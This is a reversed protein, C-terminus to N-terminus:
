VVSSACSPEVANRSFRGASYVFYGRRGHAGDSSRAVGAGAARGEVTRIQSSAARGAVRGAASLPTTTPIPAAARSRRRRQPQIRRQAADGDRQQELDDRVEGVVQRVETAAGVRRVPLPRQPDRGGAQDRLALELDRDANM